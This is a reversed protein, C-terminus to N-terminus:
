QLKLYAIWTYNPADAIVVDMGNVIDTLSTEISLPVPFGPNFLPPKSLQQYEERSTKAWEWNRENTLNPYLPPFEYYTDLMRRLAIGEANNQTLCAKPSCGSGRPNFSNGRCDHYNDEYLIHTFGREKAQFVRDVGYHDDFFVLTKDKDLEDWRIRTFDAQSYVGHESKYKRNDVPDLSIVTSQPCAKELLWTSHGYWVGSEIIYSPSLHKALFWTYFSHTFGMGGFNSSIPRSKYLEHFEPIADVLHHQQWSVKGIENVSM